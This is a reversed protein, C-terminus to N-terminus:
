PRRERGIFLFYTTWGLTTLAALAYRVPLEQVTQRFIGEILGALSLMLIAGFVLPGADNSRAALAALRGHPGSFVLGQALRLGAAAGLLVAFLETVGHPLIWSWWEVALGREHFLASMAGLEMGTVLVLLLGPVGGLIALGFALMTVRSNHTWLFAAFASLGGGGTDGNDFLTERLQETTAMPDRGSARDPDIFFWYTADLDRSCLAFAIAFGLALTTASIALQPGAARVAQPLRRAFFRGLTTGVGHRPSYVCLHARACLSELYELLNRDLCAVRAVGLSAVAARYLMPLRALAQPGLSRFGRREVQEVLRALERWSTERERRFRESWLGDADNATSM